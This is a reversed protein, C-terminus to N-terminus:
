SEGGAPKLLGPHLYAPENFPSGKFYQAGDYIEQRNAHILGQWEVQLGDVLAKKTSHVRLRYRVQSAFLFDQTAKDFKQNLDIGERKVVWRLTEPVFQYRGAAFVFDPHSPNLAGRRLVEGVSMESLGIGFEDKSNASGIARNTALWGDGGRNMADYGGYGNSEHFGVLNAFKEMGGTMLAARSTRAPTPTETLLLQVGPALRRINKEVTPIVLQKKKHLAYQAKAVDWATIGEVGSALALTRFIPPLKGKGGSDIFQQLASIPAVGGGMYMQGGGLSEIKETLPNKGDAEKLIQGRRWQQQSKTNLANLRYIHSDREVRHMKVVTGDELTVDFFNDTKKPNPDAYDKLMEIARDFAQENTVDLGSTLASMYFDNFKRELQQKYELGKTTYDNTASTIGQEALGTRTAAQLENKLRTTQAQSLGTENGRIEVRGYKSQLKARAPQSLDAYESVTLFPGAGGKQNMRQEALIVEDDVAAEQDNQVDVLLPHTESRGTIEQYRENIQALTGVPLNGDKDGLEKKIQRVREELENLELREQVTERNLRARDATSFAEEFNLDSIHIKFINRLSDLEKTDFRTTQADLIADVQERTVQENKAMDRLKTLGARIALRRGGLADAHLNISNVFAEGNGTLAAAAVDNELEIKKLKEFDERQKEAYALDDKAEWDRMPEFLYKNLLEPNMGRYQSIYSEAIAAKAAAREASGQAEALTFTRNGVTVQMQTSANTFYTGYDQGGQMALGRMYGYKAWGSLSRVKQIQEVSLGGAELNAAENYVVSTGDELAKEQADFADTQEKPLGDTFAQMMYFQEVRENRLKAGAVLTESLTNSFDALREVQDNELLNAYKVAQEELKLDTMRQDAFAKAEQLRAQNNQRLLATTDPIQLPEFGQGQYAPKFVDGSEFRKM